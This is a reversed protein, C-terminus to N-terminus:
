DLNNRLFDNCFNKMKKQLEIDIPVLSNQDITTTNFAASPFEDEYKYKKDLDVNWATILIDANNDVAIIKGGRVTDILDGLSNIVITKDKYALVAFFDNYWRGMPKFDKVIAKNDILTEFIHRITTTKGINKQGQIKLLKM